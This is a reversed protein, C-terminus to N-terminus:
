VCRAGRETHSSAGRMGRVHPRQRTVSFRLLSVRRTQAHGKGFARLISDSAESAANM